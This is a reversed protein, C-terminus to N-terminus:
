FFIAKVQAKGINVKTESMSAKFSLMFSSPLFFDRKLENHNLRGSLLSGTQQEALNQTEIFM